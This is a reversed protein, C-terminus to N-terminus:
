PMPGASVASIPLTTGTVTSEMALLPGNTFLPLTLGIATVVAPQHKGEIRGGEAVIQLDDEDIHHQRAVVHHDDAHHRRAKGGALTRFRDHGADPGRGHDADDQRQDGNAQEFDGTQRKGAAQQQEPHAPLHELFQALGSGACLFRAGCFVKPRATLWIPIASM